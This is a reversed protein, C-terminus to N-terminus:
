LLEKEDSRWHTALSGDLYGFKCKFQKLRDHLMADDPYRVKGVSHPYLEFHLQDMLLKGTISFVGGAVNCLFPRWVKYIV